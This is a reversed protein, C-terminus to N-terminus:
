LNKEQFNICLVNCIKRKEPDDLSFLNTSCNTFYKSLCAATSFSNTMAEVYWHIDRSYRLIACFSKLKGIDEGCAETIKESM